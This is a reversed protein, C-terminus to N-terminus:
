KLRKIIENIIYQTDYMNTRSEAMKYESNNQEQKKTEIFRILEDSVKEPYEKVWRLVDEWETKPMEHFQTVKANYEIIDDLSLTKIPEVDQKIVKVQWETRLLLPDKTFSFGHPYTYFKSSKRGDDGFDREYSYFIWGNTFPNLYFKNENVNYLFLNNYYMDKMKLWIFGDYPEQVNGNFRAIDVIYDYSVPNGNRDTPVVTENTKLNFLKKNSKRDHLDAIGNSTVNIRSWQTVGNVEIKQGHKFMCSYMSANQSMHMGYIENRTNVSFLNYVKEGNENPNFFKKSTIDYYFNIDASSDYVIKVCLDNNRISHLRVEGRGQWTKNEVCDCEEFWYSGNPLRFPKNTRFDILARQKGTQAVEFFVCDSKSYVGQDHAHKFKKVGDVEILAHRRLDYLMTCNDGYQVQAIFNYGLRNSYNYHTDEESSKFITDLYPCDGQPYMKFTEWIMKYRDCLITGYVQKDGVTMPIRLGMVAKKLNKRNGYLLCGSLRPFVTQIDEGGDLRMQGYKIYRLLDDTQKKKVSNLTKKDKGRIALEKQWISFIRQLDDDNMGTVKFLEEKTYAHDAECGNSGDSYDGHNWRSTIYVPEGTTNSQLLAILSNGYEDHPKRRTWNSGKKRPVNEYGNQKLIVYHIRLKKVYNNYHQEGYTICWAGPETYKNYKRAEEYSYLIDFTYGNGVNPNIEETPEKENEQPNAVANIGLIADIKKKYKRFLAKINLEGFDEPQEFQTGVSDIYANRLILICANLRDCVERNFEDTQSEDFVNLVKNTTLDGNFYYKAVGSLYYNSALSLNRILGENVFKALLFQKLKSVNTNVGKERLLNVYPLLMDDRRSENLIHM